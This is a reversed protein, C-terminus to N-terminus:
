VTTHTHCVHNNLKKFLLYNIFDLPIFDCPLHKHLNNKTPIFLHKFPMCIIFMILHLHKFDLPPKVVSGPSVLSMLSSFRTHSVFVYFKVGVCTYVCFVQTNTHKYVTHYFVM